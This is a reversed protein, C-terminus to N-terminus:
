IVDSVAAIEDKTDAVKSRLWDKVSGVSAVGNRSL